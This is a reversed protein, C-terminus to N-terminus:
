PDRLEGFVERTCHEQLAELLRSCEARVEEKNLGPERPGLADVTEENALEVARQWSREEVLQVEWTELDQLFVERPRAAPRALCCVEMADTLPLSEHRMLYAIVM